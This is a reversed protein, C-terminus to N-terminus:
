NDCCMRIRGNLKTICMVSSAHPSSSSEILGIKLLKDVQHKIENYLDKPIRYPTKRSPVFGEKLRIM